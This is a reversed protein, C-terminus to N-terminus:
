LQLALDPQQSDVMMGSSQKVPSGPSQFGINLDPPLTDQKQKPQSHPVPGRWPSQMQFRTLDTAVLQPFFVPRGQMQGGNGAHITPQMFAQFPFNNKEPQFQMGPPFPFQGPGRAIQPHLPRTPNYLSEASIQGKPSSSNEAVPRFGGAGVSMWVRAAAAAANSSDNRASPGSSTPNTTDASSQIPPKQQKQAKEASIRMAEVPDTLGQEQAKPFYAAARAMQNPAGDSKQAHMMRHNLSSNTVKADPLGGSVIGNSEPHKSPLSEPQKSPISQLLGMTRPMERPKSSTVDSNNPLQRKVTNDISRQCNSPPFNLEVQKSAKNQAEALNRPLFNQQRFTPNVPSSPKTVASSFLPSKGESIPASSPRFLSPPGDSTPGRVPHEKSPIVTRSTADNKQVDAISLPKTFLMPEKPIRTEVMLVPTSLPEYEGVWGRGFKSGPPIAQEIRQAAVKWAVPGLTAAFRALSRAYSNEAHLGVAVLQKIEGEFTSFVSESRVPPQNSLNYTARRNEDPLSQKRGLKSLLGKGSSLEEAKELNNDVTSSNNEVLAESNAPRENGGAQTAISGNQFDITTALTAGSSFDSGVPEQITRSLPKKIQKKALFNPKTKPESKLEKESREMGDKLKQFKKRALEQISRAQKHYITEPANYKMANSCILFVDSQLLFVALKELIVLQSSEYSGVEVRVHGIYSGVEFQEFTSYSGNGLKKRVTSFDMPHDVVDLYDPLEVLDVPEAYVGYTDKKQLKDLILELLKKEPLPYGIPHDSPTGPVSDEQGKVHGKRERERGREEQKNDNDEGDDNESDSDERGNIRRRKRRRKKKLPTARESEDEEYSSSSSSSSSAPGAAHAGRAGKTKKQTQNHLKVVLKVKKEKRRMDEQEEEEEAEQREQQQQEEEIGEFDEFEDLYDDYDIFNNYRVNRRRLSRRRETEAASAPAQGSASRRALDAKSPRGKKKRKVIQGM